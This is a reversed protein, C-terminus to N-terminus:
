SRRAVPPKAVFGASGPSGNSLAAQPLNNSSGDRLSPGRAADCRRVEAEEAAEQEFNRGGAIRKGAPVRMFPHM